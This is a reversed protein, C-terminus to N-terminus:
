RRKVLRVCEKGLRISEEISREPYSNFMGGMFLNSLSTKCGPIRSTIGKEFILGADEIKNVKWWNVDSKKLSPFLKQLDRLYKEFIRKNSEKWLKSKLSPYSALYIVNEGYEEFPQFNTHEIYAGFIIDKRVINTWYYKSLKNKVGMVVCIAGQHPLKKTDLGKILKKLNEPHMTSIVYDIKIRKSGVEISQIKKGKVNIKKVKANTLIKGKNKKIKEGLRDVFQYFGGELYGLVEGRVGRKNRLKMREIFWTASIKDLDGGFKSILLPEFFKEFVQEGGHEIIWDKASVNDYEAPNKIKRFGLVIRLLNIKDLINLPKFFLIDTPGSLKYLKNKYYFATSGVRWKLKDKIGLEDLLAFFREDGQFVHHYFEEIHYNNPKFSRLAGGLSKEKEIVIVENKKSLEYAATLGTVGAGIIAIKM